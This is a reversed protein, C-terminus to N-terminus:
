AYDISVVLDNFDNNSTNWSQEFGFVGQGLSVMHSRGDTNAAGVSFWVPTEQSTWQRSSVIAMAYLGAEGDLVDAIAQGQNINLATGDALARQMALEAYGKEGPQVWEGDSLLAGTIEDVKYLLWTIDSEGSNAAWVDLRTVQSAVAALNFVGTSIAVQAGGPLSFATDGALDDLGGLPDRSTVRDLGEFEGYLEFREPLMSLDALGVNARGLSLDESAQVLAQFAELNPATTLETALWRNLSGAQSATTAQLWPIASGTSDLPLAGIQQVSGFPNFLAVNAMLRGQADASWELQGIDALDLMPAMGTNQLPLWATSAGSSSLRVGFDQAETLPQPSSVKLLYTTGAAPAFEFSLGGYGSSIHRGAVSGPDITSLQQVELQLLNSSTSVLEIVANEDVSRPTDFRFWSEALGPMDGALLFEGAVLQNDNQLPIPQSPTSGLFTPLPLVQRLTTILDYYLGERSDTSIRLEMAGSVTRDAWEPALAAPNFVADEDLPSGLAAILTESGQGDLEVLALRLRGQGFSDFPRLHFILDRVRLPQSGDAPDGNLFGLGYTNTSFASSGEQLDTQGLADIWADADLYFSHDRDSPVVQTIPVALLDGAQDSQARVRGDGSEGEGNAGAQVFVQQEVMRTLLREWGTAALFGAAAPRYKQEIFQEIPQGQLMDLLQGYTSPMVISLGYSGGEVPVPNQNAQLPQGNLTISNAIVAGGVAASLKESAQRLEPTAEELLAVLKTFIALDQYPTEGGGYNTGRQAARGVGGWFAPNDIALAAEVFNRIGAAVAQMQGNDILALTNNGAGPDGGYTNRFQDVFRTGIDQPVPVAATDLNGLALHYPFGDGAVNDQSALLYRSLGQLEYAVEVSGMLCEDFALIDYYPNESGSVAQRLNGVQLNADNSDNDFESGDFNFGSLIGGGHNSLVLMKSAGSGYGYADRLFQTLAQETGTNTEDFITYPTQVVDASSEANAMLRAIGTTSWPAQSGGGSAYPKSRDVVERAQDWLSVIALTQSSNTLAQELQQINLLAGASLDVATFYHLLLWPSDNMGPFNSGKLRRLMSEM